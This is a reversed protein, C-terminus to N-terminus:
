RKIAPAAFAAGNANRALYLTLAIAADSAYLLEPFRQQRFCDYLRWEFSRLEGQSVRYAPWTTYAKQAGEVTTLNPLDQLRIRKGDEGHCTLCSFDHTGGRFVFMKGGLEFAEREKPHNLAVNMKIGRSASTVYAVLAEIDSRRESGAGYPSKKADAETYGQQAVMCYVLRTELDMVRDADAFYRPMQAYAGKVVGPGLGLDCREFSVKKPGRPQRWIGEGRVEWLEAPNGDQLAARYKAIEDVASTQAWAAVAVLAAAAALAGRMRAGTISKM